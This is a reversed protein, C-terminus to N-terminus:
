RHGTSESAARLRSRARTLAIELLVTPSVARRVAFDLLRDTHLASGALPESTRTVRLLRHYIADLETRELALAAVLQQEVDAGIEPREAEAIRAEVEDLAETWGDLHTRWAEVADLWAAARTLQRAHEDEDRALATWLACAEPDARTRAAFSRYVAAAHEEYGRCRALLEELRM